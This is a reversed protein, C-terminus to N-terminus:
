KDVLGSRGLRNPVLYVRSEAYDLSVTFLKLFESGIIGDGEGLEFAHKGVLRYGIFNRFSASSVDVRSMRYRKAEVQGGIADFLENDSDTVQNKFAEPHHRAFSDTVTFTGQMGTDLIFNDGKSGNIAVATVPQGSGVRVDIPITRADTPPQFARVPVVTVREHEYDITVGLEALFDFGLLGVNKAQIGTEFGAPAISMVVDKMVLSGVKVEPAIADATEYRGGNFANEQRRYRALGLEQAVGGDIVIGSAGTDLLFDLGRNGITLRVLVEGDTFRAPLQVSALGAPFTVLARRPNPMEVQSASVAGPEYGMVQVDGTLNSLRDDVHLHHAFTRGNDPHFDDFTTIITGDPTIRERRVVRWTAAQVYEKVGRGNADLRAILYGDVPARVVSVVAATGEPLGNTEDGDDLIVQGNRNMHWSDGKLLGYESHLPGTDRVYRYDKGRRYEHEITKSGNSYVTERTEHYADPAAGAAALIKADIAGPDPPADAGVPRTAGLAACVFLVAYAARAISSTM